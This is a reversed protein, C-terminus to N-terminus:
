LAPARLNKPREIFIEFCDIISTCNKYNSNQFCMPLSILSQKKSPWRIFRSLREHLVNLTSNFIRSASPKSVHFVYVLFHLPLNLRKRMLTMLLSQFPSMGSLGVKLFESVFTFVVMLKDYSLLGTLDQVMDDNDKFSEQSFSLKSVMERLHYVELRLANCDETLRRVMTQCAENSCAEGSEAYVTDEQCYSHDAHDRGEQASTDGDDDVPSSNERPAVVGLDKTLSRKRKVAQTQEFKSYSNIKRQREGPKLYAFLSPVYDPHLPNESKQGTIFHENCLRSHETPTWQDRKIAAIWKQRREKNKPINYFTHGDKNSKSNNCGVACCISPM